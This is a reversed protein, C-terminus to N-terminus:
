MRGEGVWGVGGRREIRRGEIKDMKKMMVTYDVYSLPILYVPQYPIFWMDPRDVIVEIEVSESDVDQWARDLLKVHVVAIGPRIGQVLM